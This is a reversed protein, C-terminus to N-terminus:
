IARRLITAMPLLGWIEYSYRLLYAVSETERAQSLPPSSEVMIWEPWLKQDLSDLCLSQIADLDAGEIDINLFDIRVSISEFLEKLKLGAVKQKAEFKFGADRYKIMWDQRVTSVAREESLYFDYFESMGVAGLLFRDRPRRRLFSSKAGADADINIGSWGREYLARTVSFRDPHHAGVDVYTGQKEDANMLQVLSLDEGCQSWSVTFDYDFRTKKYASLMPGYTSPRCLSLLLRPIEKVRLINLM